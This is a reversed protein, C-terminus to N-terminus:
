PMWFTTTIITHTRVPNGNCSMPKYRRWDQFDGYEARSIQTAQVIEPMNPQSRDDLLLAGTILDFCLTRTPASNRTVALCDEVNGKEKKEHANGVHDDPRLNLKGTISMLEDVREAIGLECPVNRQVWVKL